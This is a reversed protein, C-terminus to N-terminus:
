EEEMAVIMLAAIACDGIPRDYPFISTPVTNKSLKVAGLEGSDAKYVGMSDLRIFSSTNLSVVYTNYMGIIDHEINNMVGDATMCILNFEAQADRSLPEVWISVEVTENEPNYIITEPAISWRRHNYSEVVTLIWDFNIDNPDISKAYSAPIFAGCEAFVALLIAVACIRIRKM